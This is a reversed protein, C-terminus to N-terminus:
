THTAAATAAAQAPRRKSAVRLAVPLTPPKPYDHQQTFHMHTICSGDARRASRAHLEPQEYARLSPRETVLGM